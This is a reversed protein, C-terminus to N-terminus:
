LRHMSELLKPLPVRGLYWAEAQAPPLIGKTLTSMDTIELIPVELRYVRVYRGVVLAIAGVDRASAAQAAVADAGPRAGPVYSVRVEVTKPQDQKRGTYKMVTADVSTVNVGLQTMELMLADGLAGPEEIRRPVPPMRGRLEAETLALAKRLPDDAAPATTRAPEAPGVSAAADLETAVDPGAGLFVAGLGVFVVTGLLM